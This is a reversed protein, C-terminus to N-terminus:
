FAPNATTAVILPVLMESRSLGGHWGVMYLPQEGNLIIDGSDTVAVYDGAFRRAQPSLPQPGFLRLQEAEAISLLAFKRTLASATWASELAASMEPRAHLCPARPETSPLAALCAALRSDLRQVQSSTVMRHGHDATIVLAVSSPGLAADANIDAWFEELAANLVTLARRAPKSDFGYEHCSHDPENVYCYALSAAATAAAPASTRESATQQLGHTKHQAAAAAQALWFRRLNALVERIDGGEVKEHARMHHESYAGHIYAHNVITPVDLQPWASPTCFIESASVGLAELSTAPAPVVSDLQQPDPTFPLPNFRLPFHQTHQTPASHAAGVDAAQSPPELLTLTWGLIGHEAPYTATAISTIATATSSPFVANIPRRFHRRLFASEPLTQLLELGLGDLVFLAVHADDPLALERRLQEEEAERGPNAPLADRERLCRSYLTRVLEVTTPGSLPHVLAGSAFWEQVRELDCRTM